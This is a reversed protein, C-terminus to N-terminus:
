QLGVPGSLSIIFGFKFVEDDGRCSDEKRAGGGEPEGLCLRRISGDKRAAGEELGGMILESSDVVSLERLRTEEDMDNSCVYPIQRDGEAVVCGKAVEVGVHVAVDDDEEEHRSGRDVVTNEVEEFSSSVENNRMFSQCICQEKVIKSVITQEECIRVPYFVGNCELNITHNITDMCRTEIKVKGYHFTSLNITDEDMELVEGWERGINCFTNYNWLILPVGYCSIWVQRLQEFVMGEEWEEVSDCWDNLWEKMLLLNERM